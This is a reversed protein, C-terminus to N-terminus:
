KGSKEPYSTSQSLTMYSVCFRSSSLGRTSYHMEKKNDLSSSTATTIIIHFTASATAGFSVLLM